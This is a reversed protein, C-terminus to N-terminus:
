FQAVTGDSFLPVGDDANQHADGCHRRGDRVIADRLAEAYSRAEPYIEALYENFSHGDVWGGLGGLCNEQAGDVYRTWGIVTVNNMTFM